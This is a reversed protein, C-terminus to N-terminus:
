PESGEREPARAPAAAVEAVLRHLRAGAGVPLLAGPLLVPAAEGERWRVVGLLLGVLTPEVAGLPEIPRESLEPVEDVALAILGAPARVFVLRGDVLEIASRPACRGLRAGLDLLLVLQGHYDVAGLCYRPARPLAAAPAVMRTVEVVTELSLAVSQGGCRLILSPQNM